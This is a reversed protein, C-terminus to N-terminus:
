PRKIISKELTEYRKKLREYESQMLLHENLTWEDDSPIHHFSSRAEELLRMMTELSEDAGEIDEAILSGDVLSAETYFRTSATRFRDYGRLGM